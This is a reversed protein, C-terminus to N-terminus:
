NNQNERVQGYPFENCDYRPLNQRHTLIAEYTIDESRVDFSFHCGEETLVNLTQDNYSYSGGYPFCFTKPSLPIIQSLFDFSDVIETRQQQISLKSMVPHNITHSGIIMGGEAMERIHSPKLYFQDIHYLDEPVFEALLQNLICDRYEYDIYYNLIKKVQTEATLNNQYRYTLERFDQRYADVLREPTLRSQLSVLVENANSSALLIHTKHVALLEKKEYPYTPVYFIGWLNRERLEPYVYDYHCSLGDDFTLIVGGRHLNNSVCSGDWLSLFETKDVFGYTRDFYDLQRRFDDIHLHKLRPLRSDFPRVYHYMVAKM